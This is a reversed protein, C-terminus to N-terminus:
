SAPMDYPLLVFRSNLFDAIINLAFLRVDDAFRRAGTTDNTAVFLSLAPRWSEASESRVKNIFAIAQSHIEQGQLSHDSAVAIAQLIQEEPSAM